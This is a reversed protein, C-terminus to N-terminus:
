EADDDDGNFPDNDSEVDDAPSDSDSNDNDLDDIEVAQNLAQPDKAVIRDFAQEAKADGQESLGLLKNADAEIQDESVHHQKGM